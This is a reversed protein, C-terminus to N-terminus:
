SAALLEAWAHLGWLPVDQNTALSTWREGAVLASASGDLTQRVHVNALRSFSEPNV